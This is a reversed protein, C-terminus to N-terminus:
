DRKLFFTITKQCRPYDMCGILLYHDNHTFVFSFDHLDKISERILSLGFALLAPITLINVQTTLALEIFIFISALLSAIIINGIFAIKKLFFNYAILTLLIIYFFIKIDISNLFFSFVISILLSLCSITKAKNFSILGKSMVRKPHNIKDAQFDLIDNMSNAFNMSFIILFMCIMIQHWNYIDILHASLLVSLCAIFINHFRILRLYDLIKM